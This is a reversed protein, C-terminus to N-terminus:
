RKTSICKQSNIFSFQPSESQQSKQTHKTHYKVQIKNFDQQLCGMTDNKEVTNECRDYTGRHNGYKIESCHVYLREGGM